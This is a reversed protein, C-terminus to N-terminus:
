PSAPPRPSPCSGQSDFSATRAKWEKESKKSEVLPHWHAIPKRPYALMENWHDRGLGEAQCGVRMVGIIENHGVLDYDMVSIHLSVHDMSDPPIDFIIAENYTPNLTNKKISTKKKKLRRGDCILSVKVYPDSYGTIDMAKLNRCKIVTLTLRGATPLYCLSFMIEGLDVSESTAYQIDRWINTERSLDSTEFLNELVVEGIMDHRSFRDFDFVSMHLKRIALEEYPVPFQFTEDFTPNLTKRHVRTQFKKRDPLLYVKVYPDSTGCLDKAPLDVAKLINVLLAESEYDYKLSFNIRGCNKSSGNKSSEESELAKQQYLEPQIRGISTQKEDKDVMYDNGLDLSCVQMQRPLHRKFSSHRTSSAPETTQRQMRQTRRLFHERMSLQVDTPIDPSTRSIKVAAELFGMSGMPDKLKETAMTVVPQQPGSLLPPLPLAPSQQIPSHHPGCAPSLSPAPLHAKTQRPLWCLKWTVFILLGLVALGCVLFVGLLLGFTADSVVARVKGEEQDKVRVERKRLKRMIFGRFFYPYGEGSGCVLYAAAPSPEEGQEAIMEKTQDTNLTFNNDECWTVLSAVERRYAAKVEGTIRGIIATEDAFKLLVNDRHSAVCDHTFLTYLIPSLICGQPTGINSQPKGTLCLSQPRYDNLHTPPSKKPLPVITTIKFCSPVTRQSLSLNIISTLVDTQENSHKRTRAGQPPRDEVPSQKGPCILHSTPTLPTCHNLLATSGRCPTHLDLTRSGSPSLRPQDPHDQHFRAILDPDLVHRGPAWQRDAPGYGEWDVLYQVGWGVRRSALLERM